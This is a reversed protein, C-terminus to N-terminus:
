SDESIRGSYIIRGELITLEVNLNEDFLIIDADKGVEISGKSQDYGILRAPNISALGVAEYIELNTYQLINYVAKNMGVISGALKGDSLRVSNGDAIVKQGGLEWIGADMGAARMSDTVLIM